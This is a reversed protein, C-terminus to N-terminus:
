LPRAAPQYAITSPLAITPAKEMIVFWGDYPGENGARSTLQVESM